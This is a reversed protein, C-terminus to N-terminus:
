RLLAARGRINDLIEELIKFLLAQLMGGRAQLCNV